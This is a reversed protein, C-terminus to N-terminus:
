SQLNITFLQSQNLTSISPPFFQPHLASIPQSHLDLASLISPPSSLNTTGMRYHRENFIGSIGSIRIGKYNVVGAFGLFFIRPAVYGGYYLSQLINSAEHNGGIFITLVPALKTGNVYHHFTNLTRYKPPMAVCNLDLMDRVCQFDGCVVLVDVAICGPDALSAYIADLEGHCCGVVAVSVGNICQTNM